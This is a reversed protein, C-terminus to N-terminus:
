TRWLSTTYINGFTAFMPMENERVINLLAGAHTATGSHNRCMMKFAAAHSYAYALTGVHGSQKARSLLQNAFQHARDVEGLPWLVLTLYSVIAVGLDQAFRVFLNADREPDFIALARELETRAFAFNGALWNVNGNLRATTCAEASDLWAEGLMLDTIERTPGFEGRVFSNAWLGFLVSFRESPDKIGVTLAHARAFAAKTEPASYGRAHLMAQGYSTQLKLRRRRAGAAHKVDDTDALTALLTQAQAIEPCEATPSLGELTPALVAHADAARGTSQYLKALSLGARLEFSKAEQEKAIASATLFADEAPRTDAPERKLLIEGRIRHTEADFWRQGSRETDAIVGDITALAQEVQGAEAEVEALATTFFPLYNGLRQEQCAVLGNRMETVVDTGNKGRRSWPALFKGDANWMEMEHTRSVNVFAEIHLASASSSRRLMELVAFHFHAYGITSVHGTRIARAVGEEAVARAQDVRTVRDCRSV